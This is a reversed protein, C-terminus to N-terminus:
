LPLRLRDWPCSSIFRNGVHRRLCARWISADLSPLFPSPPLRLTLVSGWRVATRRKTATGEESRKADRVFRRLAFRANAMAWPWSPNCLSPSLTACSSLIAWCPLTPSNFESFVCLYAAAAAPPWKLLIICSSPLFYKMFYCCHFLFLNSKRLVKSKAGESQGRQCGRGGRGHGKPTARAFSRRKQFSINLTANTCLIFVICYYVHTYLSM